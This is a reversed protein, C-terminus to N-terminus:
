GKKGVIFPTDPMASPVPVSTLYGIRKWEFHGLM